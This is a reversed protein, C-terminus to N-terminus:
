QRPGQGDDEIRGVEGGYPTVFGRLARIGRPEDVVGHWCRRTGDWSLRWSERLLTRVKGPPVDTFFVQVRVPITRGERRQQALVRDAEANLRRIIDSIHLNDAQRVGSVIEVRDFARQRHHGARLRDAVLDIRDKWRAREMENECMADRTRIM